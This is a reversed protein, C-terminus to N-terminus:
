LRLNFDQKSFGKNFFALGLRYFDITITVDDSQKVKKWADRMGDSWNIDDFIIVSNERAYKKAIEFYNWTAELTHNGDIFLYDFGSLQKLLAPLSEDFHGTIVEINSFGNESIIKRAQDATAPCGELTYLYGNCNASAQYMASIGLSTGLEVMVQPQLFRVVRYLLSGYAANKAFKRTIEGITRAAVKGDYSSGAGLDVVDISTKDSLLQSRISEIKNKEPIETKSYVGETLLKFVFPSHVDHENGAFFWHKSYRYVQDFIGQLNLSM